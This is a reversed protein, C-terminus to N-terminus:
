LQMVECTMREASYFVTVSSKLISTVTQQSLHKYLIFVPLPLM